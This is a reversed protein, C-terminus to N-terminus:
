LYPYAHGNSLSVQGLQVNREEITRRVGSAQSIPNVLKIFACQAKLIDGFVPHRLLSFTEGFVWHFKIMGIENGLNILRCQTASRIGFTKRIPLILQGVVTYTTIHEQGGDDIASLRIGRGLSHEVCSSQAVFSSRANCKRIFTKVIECQGTM